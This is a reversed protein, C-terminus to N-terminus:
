EQTEVEQQLAEAKAKLENFLLLQQPDIKEGRRGFLKHKLYAIQSELDKIETDCETLQETQQAIREEHQAICQDREVVQHHTDLVLQKLTDIDNPLERITM